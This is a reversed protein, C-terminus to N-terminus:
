HGTLAIKFRRKIRRQVSRALAGLPALGNDDAVQIVSDCTDIARRAENAPLVEAFALRLRQRCVFDRKEFAALIREILPRVRAQDSDFGAIRAILLLGHSVEGFRGEFSILLDEVRRADNRAEEIRGLEIMSLGRLGRVMIEHWAVNAFAQAFEDCKRTCAAFDGVHYELLAANGIGALKYRAPVFGSLGIALWQRAQEPDEQEILLSALPEAVEPLYYTAGHQEITKVIRSLML